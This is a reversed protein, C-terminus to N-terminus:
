LDKFLPAAGAASSSIDGLISGISGLRVNENEADIQSREIEGFADLRAINELAQLELRARMDSTTGTQGQGLAAQRNEIEGAALRARIDADHKARAENARSIAKQTKAAEDAQEIGAIQIGVSAATAAASTALLIIPLAQM